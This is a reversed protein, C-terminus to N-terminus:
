IFDFLFVWDQGCEVLHICTIQVTRDVMLTTVLAMGASMVESHSGSRFLM